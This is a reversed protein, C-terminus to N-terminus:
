TRSQLHKRTVTLEAFASSASTEVGGTLINAAVCRYRGEDEYLVGMITLM